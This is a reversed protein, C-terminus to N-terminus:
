RDIKRGYYVVKSKTGKRGFAPQAEKLIKAFDKGKGTVVLEWGGSNIRRNGDNSIAKKLKKLSLVLGSKSHFYEGDKTLRTDVITRHGAKGHEFVTVKAKGADTLVEITGFRHFDFSFLDARIPFALSLFAITVFLLKM